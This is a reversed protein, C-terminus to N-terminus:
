VTPSLSWRALRGTPDKVNMLWRLANHDSHVTFARGYLYPQFHKIGAVVALAERETASYHQEASSLKRGAYLIVVEKNDHIQGLIMGITENSADVYLHFRLSFDPFALIPASLLAEKLRLFSSQCADTWVFKVNKKTLEHLPSAIRSFDHVFKRYYGSLCLFARVDRTTKPIPFDQVAKVKEPDPRVGDRSVVHSPANTLGFPMVLFEFLGAHTIFATKERSSQEMELQWYGSLLDLTSFYQVGSLADLTDDVRPLPYSDKKTIANLRRYDICFRDQGDKKRVLVGPAAWPSVSLQIVDRDLMDQVHADIKERQTQAVRYPRLRIPPEQGTDISHQVIGTRGLETPHFAFFFRYENLLSQLQSKQGETLSSTGWEILIETGPAPHPHPEPEPDQDLSVAAINQDVEHFCGLNTVRYLTIPNATPNLIRFPVKNCASVTALVAAGQIQYRQALHDNPEVLGVKQPCDKDLQAPILM